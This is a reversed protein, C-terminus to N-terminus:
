FWQNFIIKMAMYGNLIMLLIIIYFQFILKKNSTKILTWLFFKLPIKKLIVVKDTYITLPKQKSILFKKEEYDYIKDNIQIYQIKYNQHWFLLFDQHSITIFDLKKNTIFLNGPAEKYYIKGYWNISFYYNQDWYVNIM